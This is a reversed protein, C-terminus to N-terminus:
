ARMSVAPGFDDPGNKRPVEAYHGFRTTGIGEGKTISRLSSRYDFLRALPVHARIVTGSDM